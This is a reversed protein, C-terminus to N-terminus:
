NSPCGELCEVLQRLRPEGLRYRACGHERVSEVLGSMRLIRLQQSLIAQPVDLREAMVTVSLDEACLLGVIRLRIPHALSKLTDALYAAKARDAVLGAM